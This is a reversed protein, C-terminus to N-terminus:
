DTRIKVENSSPYDALCVALWSVQVRRVRLSRQFLLERKKSNHSYVYWKLLQAATQFILFWPTSLSGNGVLM